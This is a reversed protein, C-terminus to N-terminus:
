SPHRKESFVFMSMRYFYFGWYSLISQMHFIGYVIRAFVSPFLRLNHRVHTLPPSTKEQRWVLSPHSKLPTTVIHSILSSPNSASFAIYSPLLIYPIPLFSRSNRNIFFISLNKKSISWIFYSKSKKLIVVILNSNRVNIKLNWSFFFLFESLFKSVKNLNSPSSLKFCVIDFM